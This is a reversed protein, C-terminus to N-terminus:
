VACMCVSLRVCVGRFMMKLCVRVCEVVTYVCVTINLIRLGIRQSVNLIMLEDLKSNQKCHWHRPSFVIFVVVADAPAAVIVCIIRKAFLNHAACAHVSYNSDRLFRKM